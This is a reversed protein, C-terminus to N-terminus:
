FDAGETEEFEIAQMEQQRDVSVYAMLLSGLMDLLFLRPAAPTLPAGSGQMFPASEDGLWQARLQEVVDKRSAILAPQVNCLCHPHYPPLEAAGIKYPDRLRKNTWDLTAIDDCIDPSTEVLPHRNSLAVDIGDVFPNEEASKYSAQAHAFSIETRALRMADFSADKGYPKITRIMSRGPQLFSTLDAAIERSGRGQRIGDRLLGDIKTRTREGTQWVRDSLTFGRKDLWEHTPIYTLHQRQESVAVQATRLWTRLEPPLKRNMDKAHAIVVDAQVSAIERNMWAAFPSLPTIGDESYANRGDPGVFLNMIIQGARATITNQQRPDILGDPGAQTTILRSLADIAPQFITGLEDNMRRRSLRQFLVRTSPIPM